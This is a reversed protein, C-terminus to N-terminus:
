KPYFYYPIRVEIGFQALFNREEAIMSFLKKEDEKDFDEDIRTGSAYTLGTLVVQPVFHTHMDSGVKFEELRYKSAIKQQINPLVTKFINETETRLTKELPEVVMLSKAYKQLAEDYQQPTFTM